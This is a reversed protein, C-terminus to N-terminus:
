DFSSHEVLFERMLTTNSAEMVKLSCKRLNDWEFDETAYASRVEMIRLALGKHRHSERMLAGVFKDGDKLPVRECFEMLEQHGEPNYAQLQALVIKVALFTFFNHLSDAAKGEPSKEGPGPIHMKSCPSPLMFRRRQRTRGSPEMPVQNLSISHHMTNSSLLKNAVASSLCLQNETISYMRHHLTNRRNNMDQMARSSSFQSNCKSIKPLVQCWPIIISM